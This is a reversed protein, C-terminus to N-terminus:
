SKMANKQTLKIKNDNIKTINDIIEQEKVTIDNYYKTKQNNLDTIDQQSLEQQLNPAELTVNFNPPQYKYTKPNGTNPDVEIQGTNPDIRNYGSPFQSRYEKLLEEQEPNYFSKVDGGLTPRERQGVRDNWIRISYLYGMKYDIM